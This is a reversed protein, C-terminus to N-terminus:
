LCAIPYLRAFVWGPIVGNGPRLYPGASADKLTIWDGRTRLGTYDRWNSRALPAYDTQWHHFICARM